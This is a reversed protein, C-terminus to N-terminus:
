NLWVVTATPDTADVIFGRAVGLEAATATAVERICGEAATSAAVAGVIRKGRTLSASDGGPLTMFGAVQVTAVDDSEVKLLKGVVAEGDGATDVTGAASLTVALGVNACGGEVGATYNVHTGDGKFSATLFGIENFSVTLRPDSM